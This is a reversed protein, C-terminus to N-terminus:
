FHIHKSTISKHKGSTVIRDMEDQLASILGDSTSKNFAFCLDSEGLIYISEYNDPDLGTKEAENRAAADNFAILDVNKVTLVELFSSYTTYVFNEQPVGLTLLLQEGASNKVTGIKYNRLDTESNIQISSSKLAVLETRDTAIPCVWKFLDEREKTRTTAFLVANNERLALDYGHEWPLMQIEDVNQNAGVQKLLEGLLDVAIGKVKGDKTFNYPPNEESIIKLAPIDDAGVFLSISATLILAIMGRFYRRNM